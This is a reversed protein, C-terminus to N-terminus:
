GLGDDVPDLSIYLPLRPQDPQRYGRTGATFNGLAKADPSNGREHYNIAIGLHYQRL